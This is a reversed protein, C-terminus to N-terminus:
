TQSRIWPVTEKISDVTQRPLLKLRAAAARARALQWLGAAGYVVSVVLWSVWAPLGIAHLVAAATVGAFLVAALTLYGAIAFTGTVRKAKEWEEGLEARALAIEQRVLKQADTLIEGVLRAIAQEEGEPAARAGSQPTM